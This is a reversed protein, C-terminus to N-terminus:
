VGVRLVLGILYQRSLTQANGPLGDREHVSFASEATLEMRWDRSLSYGFGYGASFLLDINAKEPALAQKPSDQEFAGYQVGGLFVKFSNYLGPQASGGAHVVAGYSAITAHADVGAGSFPTYLLPARM